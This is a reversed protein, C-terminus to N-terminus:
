LYFLIEWDQKCEQKCREAEEKNEFIIWFENRCRLNQWVEIEDELWYITYWNFNKSLEVKKEWIWKKITTLAKRRTLEKEIEEETLFINWMKLDNKYYSSYNHKDIIIKESRNFASISYYTDWIELEYISKPKIEELWWEIWKNEIIDKIMDGIEKFYMTDLYYIIGNKYEIITGVKLWPLEKLLKYNRM